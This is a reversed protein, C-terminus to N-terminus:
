LNQGLECYEHSITVGEKELIKHNRRVFEAMNEMRLGISPDIPREVLIAEVPLGVVVDGSRKGLIPGGSNGTWTTCDHRLSSVEMHDDVKKARAQFEPPQKRDEDRLSKELEREHINRPQHTGSIKARVSCSDSATPQGRRRRDGPFGLM